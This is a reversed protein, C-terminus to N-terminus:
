KITALSKKDVQIRATNDQPVIYNGRADFNNPVSPSSMSGEMVTEGVVGGIIAGVVGGIIAGPVGGFAGMEAGIEGGAIAGAISGGETVVAKGKDEATAVNYVSVAATGVAAVKGIKGITEVKSNVGSNTKSATGGTRSSEEGIPRMQEAMTRTIAPTKERADIKAQTRGKSDTPDLNSVRSRYESRVRQSQIGTYAGHAGVSQAARLGREQITKQSVPGHVVNGDAAYWSELGELEIHAVVKNESFAYPSNYLYSEALPDISFFRGIEPMANRWRFSVWGLDLDEIHEQGQFKYRQAVSNERKYSNYTLGFPYYDDM